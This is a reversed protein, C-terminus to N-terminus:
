LCCVKAPTSKDKDSKQAEILSHTFSIFEQFPAPLNSLNVNFVSQTFTPSAFLDKRIAFVLNASAPASAGELMVPIQSSWKNVSSLILAIASTKLDQPMPSQLMTCISIKLTQVTAISPDLVNSM